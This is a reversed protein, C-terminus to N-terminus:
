AAVSVDGLGSAGDEGGLRLMVPMSYESVLPGRRALVRYCAFITGPPIGADKLRMQSTIGLFRYGARDALRRELVFSTGRGRAPHKWRVVVSGDDSLEAQVDQPVEPPLAEAIRPKVGAASWLQPNADAAARIRSLLRLGARSASAAANDFERASERAAEWATRRAEYCKRARELRDALVSIDAEDLGLQTSNQRWLALRQEFWRVRDLHKSM